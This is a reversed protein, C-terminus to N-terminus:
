KNPTESLELTKPDLKLVYIAQYSNLNWVLGRKADFNLTDSVSGQREQKATVNALVVWRNKAPDYAVEKGNILNNFLVLDVSAVYTSERINNMAKAKGIADANAPTLTEVKNTKLDLRCINGFPKEYDGADMWVVDRKADYCMTAADCGPSPLKGNVAFPKWAKEKYDFLWTQGYVGWLIVGKPTGCSCTSYIHCNFPQDVSFEFDGTDPNYVGTGGTSPCILRKSVPDYAYHNYTHNACDPRGNFTMGKRGGIIEAVFPISWRNIAPHYTSVITSPDACHGGTWRYIQDRDADYRATGWDREPALAPQVPVKTWVNAPLAAFWAETAKVDGRPAADYVNPNYGTVITRYIRTGSPVGGSGQWEGSSLDFTFEGAPAPMEGQQYVMKNLVTLGGTLVFTKRDANWDFTASMRATPANKPWVQRWSKKALDYIWTDNLMYDHHSGGFLVVTKSAPDWAAAPGERPTPSSALCDAAEDLAWQGDFCLKLTAADIKGAALATKAEQLAALAKQLLPKAHALADKEWGDAKASSLETNLAEALKVSEALRKAPEGKIAEAEKSADLAAYFIGRALGECDKAPKRAAVAKERLPDLLASAFKLERWTKGDASLAWSGLTGFPMGGNHGCLFLAEKNVEDCVIAEGNWTFKFTGYGYEASPVRAKVPLPPLDKPDKVPRTYDTKIKVFWDPGKIAPPSDGEGAAANLALMAFLVTALNRANNHM